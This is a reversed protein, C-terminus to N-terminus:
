WAGTIRANTPSYTTILALLNWVLEQQCSLKVTGEAHYLRASKGQALIRGRTEKSDLFKDFTKKKRQELYWTALNSNTAARGRLKSLNTLKIKRNRVNTAIDSNAEEFSKTFSTAFM